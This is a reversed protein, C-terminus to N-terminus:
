NQHKLALWNLNKGVPIKNNEGVDKNFFRRIDEINLSHIAHSVHKPFDVSVGEKKM